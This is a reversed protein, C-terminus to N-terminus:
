RIMSAALRVVYGDRWPKGPIRDVRGSRAASSTRWTLRGLPRCSSTTRERRWPTSIVKIDVVRSVVIVAPNSLVASTAKLVDPWGGDPLATDTLVLAPLNRGRLARRAASCNRVRRTSIGQDLLIREVARVPEEADYVLLAWLGDGLPTPKLNVDDYTIVRDVIQL